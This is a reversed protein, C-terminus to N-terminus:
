INRHDFCKEGDYIETPIKGCTKCHVVFAKKGFFKTLFNIFGSHFIVNEHSSFYTAKM